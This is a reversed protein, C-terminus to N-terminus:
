RPARVDGLLLDAQETKTPLGTSPGGAPRGRHGDAAGHDGRARDGRAKLDIGPRQHRHGRAHGGFAAGIAMAAAAIEDEAQMTRVGFNKYGPSSTSCTPRPRSRTAPTSSRCDPRIRRRRHPGVRHGDNGIINRYTGPPSSHRSAGRLHPLLARHDRRLQVRGQVGGHQRRCVRAEEVFKGNSGTVTRSPRGHSCGPSSAWHSSTRPANPTRPKVGM